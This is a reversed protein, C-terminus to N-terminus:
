SKVTSIFENYLMSQSLRIIIHLALIIWELMMYNLSASCYVGSLLAGTLLARRKNPGSKLAFKSKKSFLGAPYYNWGSILSM